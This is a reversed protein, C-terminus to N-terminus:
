EYEHRNEHEIGHAELEEQRERLHELSTQCRKINSELSEIERAVGQRENILTLSDLLHNKHDEVMKEAKAQLSKTCEDVSDGEDLSATLTVEPRLNSYSEFPHNFTRGANVVIQTVKMEEGLPKTLDIWVCYFYKHMNGFGDKRKIGSGM